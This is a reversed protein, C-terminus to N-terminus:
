IVNNSSGVELVEKVALVVVVMRGQCGKQWTFRPSCQTQFAPPQFEESHGNSRLLWKTDACPVQEIMLLPAVLTATSLGLQDVMLCPRRWSLSAPHHGPPDVKDLNDTGATLPPSPLILM